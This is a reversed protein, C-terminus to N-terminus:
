MLLRRLLNESGILRILNRLWTTRVDLKKFEPLVRDEDYIATYIPADPFAKHLEYVVREAGGMVTLFEAVIAIRPQKM